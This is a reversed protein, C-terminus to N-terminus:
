FDWEPNAPNTEVDIKQEGVINISEVRCRRGIFVITDGEKVFGISSPQQQYNYSESESHFYTKGGISVDLLVGSGYKTHYAHYFSLEGSITSKFSFLCSDTTENKTTVVEGNSWSWGDCNICDGAGTIKETVYTTQAANDVEKDKSCAEFSIIALVAFFMLIKNKM